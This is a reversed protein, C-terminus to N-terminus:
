FDWVIKPRHSKCFFGVVVRNLVADWLFCEDIVVLIGDYAYSMGCVMEGDVLEFFVFLIYEIFCEVRGVDFVVLALEFALLFVRAKYEGVGERRGLCKMDGIQDAAM